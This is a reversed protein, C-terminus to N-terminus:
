PKPPPAPDPLRRLALLARHLQVARQLVADVLPKRVPPEAAAPDPDGDGLASDSLHERVLLAEDDRPKDLKETVLADIPTGTELADYARRGTGPPVPLAIDPEFGTEAPGLIILGPVAGPSALPSLLEPSTAANALLFVPMRPSAHFRLWATLALAAASDGRAYRLDLVCPRRRVSEDTPLDAPLAHARFYLLGLGLDREIPAGQASALAALAALWGLTSRRM